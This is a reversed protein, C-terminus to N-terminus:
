SITPPPLMIPPTRYSVGGVASTLLTWLSLMALPMLYYSTFIPHSLFFALNAILNVTVISPAIKNERQIGAAAVWIGILIILAGQTDKIYDATVSFSFDPSATDAGSYTTAL